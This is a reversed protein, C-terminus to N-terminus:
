AKGCAMGTSSGTSGSEMMPTATLGRTYVKAVSAAKPMTVWTSIGTVSDNTARAMDKIRQGTAKMYADLRMFVFALATVVAM